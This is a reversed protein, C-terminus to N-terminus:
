LFNLFVDDPNEGAGRQRGGEGRGGEPLGLPLQATRSGSGVEALHVRGRVLRTRPPRLPVYVPGAPQHEGPGAGGHCRTLKWERLELSSAEESSIKQIRVIYIRM